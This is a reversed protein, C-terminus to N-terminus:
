DCAFLIKDLVHVAYDNTAMQSLFRENFKLCEILILKEKYTSVNEIINQLPYTGIQHTSILYFKEKIKNLYFLKEDLNIYVYLMRSFYNGYISIILKPLNDKIEDFIKSLIDSPIIMVYDQLLKSGNRSLSLSFFQGAFIKYFESFFKLNDSRNYNDAQAILVSICKQNYYSILESPDVNPPLRNRPNYKDEDFQEEEENDQTSYNNDTFHEKSNKYRNSTFPLNTKTMTRGRGLGSNTRCVEENNHESKNSNKWSITSDEIYTDIEEDEIYQKLNTTLMKLLNEEIINETDRSPDSM